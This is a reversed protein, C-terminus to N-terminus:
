ALDLGRGVTSGLKSRGPRLRASGNAQPLPGDVDADLRGSLMGAPATTHLRSPDLSDIVGHLQYSTPRGRQLRTGGDFTLRAQDLTAALHATVLGGEAGARADFRLKGTPPVSPVLAALDSLDLPRAALRVDLLDVM